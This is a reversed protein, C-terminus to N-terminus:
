INEVKFYGKSIHLRIHEALLDKDSDKQSSGVVLHEGGKYSFINHGFILM